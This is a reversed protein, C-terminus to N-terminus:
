ISWDYDDLKWGCDKKKIDLSKGKRIDSDRTDAIILNPYIVYCQGSFVQNVRKLPDMDWPSNLNMISKILINFCDKKIGLAFAGPISGNPVLFNPYHRCREKIRWQHMSSGLYLLKWNFPVTNIRLSFLNEFNNHFIVDDELILISQYNNQFAHTLIFYASLLVGYSGPTELSGFSRRRISSWQSYFPEQYGNIAPFRIYNYINNKQLRSIMKNMRDVRHNLNLVYIKDFYTNISILNNSKKINNKYDM